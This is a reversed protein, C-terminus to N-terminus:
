LPEVKWALRRGDKVGYAVSKGDATFRVPFVQDYSPHQRITKGGADAVVVFRKGDQRARYALWKGDASFVPSVVRDFSPGEKGNVVVFWRDDRRAAYAHGGGAAYVLGEAEQYVGERGSGDVFFERLTVGTGAWVLAGVGRRDPRTIPYGVFPESPAPVERDGMVLMHRGSRDGLYSFAQPDSVNDLGAIAAFGKGRTVHDPQEFSFTVVHQVDDREAIAVVNKRDGSTLLVSVRPEVLVQRRLALDSVVLRGRDDGQAAEIFAIRTGDSAFEYATFQGQTAAGRVGDIVLHWGAASRGPYAVHAGDPSFSPVGIEAFPESEAGDVVMRWQGDEGLAAYALRRGDRSLTLSNVAQYPRGAKGNYVARFRGGADAIWAVGGGREAFVFPNGAVPPPAGDSAGAAESLEALVASGELVAAPQARPAPAQGPPGKDKSKCGAALLTACVALM